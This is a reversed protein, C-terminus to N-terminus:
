HIQTLRDLSTKGSMGVNAQDHLQINSYTISKYVDPTIWTVTFIRQILPSLFLM